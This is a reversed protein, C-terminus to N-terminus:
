KQHQAKDRFAKIIAALPLGCLAGAVWPQNHMALYVAGGICCMSVVAGLIQGIADSRFVAQQQYKGMDLQQQQLNINANATMVEMSRRHTSENEALSILREASGPVLENFGRLVEPHPIPGQYMQTQLMVQKGSQVAKAPEIQSDAQKVIATRPPKRPRAM